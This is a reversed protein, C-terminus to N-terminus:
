HLTQLDFPRYTWKAACVAWALVVTLVPLAFASLGLLRRRSLIFLVTAGLLAAILLLGDVHSEIPQWQGGLTWRAVYVALAGGTVVAVLAGLLPATEGSRAPRFLRRLSVASAALSLLALLALALSTVTANMSRRRDTAPAGAARRRRFAQPDGHRVRGDTAAPPRPTRRRRRRPGSHYSSVPRRDGAAAALGPGAGRGVRRPDDGVGVGLDGRHGGRHDGSRVARPRPDRRGRRGSRGGSEGARGAGP